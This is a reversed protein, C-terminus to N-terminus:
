LHHHSGTCFGRSDGRLRGFGVDELFNFLLTTSRVVMLKTFLVYMFFFVFVQDFFVNYVFFM